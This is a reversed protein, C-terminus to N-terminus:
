PINLGDQSWSFSFEKEVCEDKAVHNGLHGPVKQCRFPAGRFHITAGCLEVRESYYRCIDALTVGQERLHGRCHRWLCTEIKECNVCIREKRESM